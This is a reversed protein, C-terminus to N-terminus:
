EEGKLLVANINKDWRAFDNKMMKEMADPNEECVDLFEDLV